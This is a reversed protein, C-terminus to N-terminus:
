NILMLFDLEVKIKGEFSKLKLFIVTEVRFEKQNKKKKQLEKKTFHELLKNMNLIVLLM